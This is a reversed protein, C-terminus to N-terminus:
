RIIEFRLLACVVKKGFVLMIIQRAVLRLELEFRSFGAPIDISQLKVKCPESM